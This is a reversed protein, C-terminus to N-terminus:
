KGNHSIRSNGDEKIIFIPKMDNLYEQVIPDHSILYVASDRAYKEEVLKMGMITAPYDLNTFIEDLFIVSSGNLNIKTMDFISLNLAFNVKVKEGTSLEQYKYVEGDYIITENFFQDFVLTLTGNYMRDLNQQIINNFGPLIQTIIHQKFSNENKLDLTNQWFELMKMTKVYEAKKALLDVLDKQNKVIKERFKKNNDWSISQLEIEATHLEQKFNNIEMAASNSNGRNVDKAIQTKIEDHLKIKLIEKDLEEIKAKIKEKRDQTKILNKKENENNKIKLDWDNQTEMLETEYQNKIKLYDEEKQITGCKHCKTPKHNELRIKANLFYKEALEIEKNSDILDKQNKKEEKNIKELENFYKHRKLDLVYVENVRDLLHKIEGQSKLYKKIKIKIKKLKDKINKEKNTLEEAEEDVHNQFSNNQLEITRIKLQLERFEDETTKLQEAVKKWYEKLKNLQIINEFIRARDPPGYELFHQRDDRALLISKRFTEDNIIVLDNIYQQTARNDAFSIDKWENKSKKKLIVDHRHKRHYRYREIRYEQGHLEFELGVYADKKIKKNLVDDKNIDKSVVGFLAYQPGMCFTSKGSGVSHLINETEGEIQLDKNCGKILHIGKQAFKFEHKGYFSLFNELEMKKLILM